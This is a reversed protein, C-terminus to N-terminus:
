RCDVDECQGYAIYFKCPYKVLEKKENEKSEAQKSLSTKGVSPEIKAKDNNRKDKIMSSFFFPFRRMNRTRAHTEQHEVNYLDQLLEAKFGVEQKELNEDIIKTKDKQQFETHIKKRHWYVYETESEPESSYESDNIDIELAM